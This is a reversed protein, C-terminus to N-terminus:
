LITEYLISNLDQTGYWIIAGQDFPGFNHRLRYSTVQHSFIHFILEKPNLEPSRPPLYIVLIQLPLGGMVTDLFFSWNQLIVVLTSPQM